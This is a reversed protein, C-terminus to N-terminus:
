FIPFGIQGLCMVLWGLCCLQGLEGGRGTVVEGGLRGRGSASSAWGMVGDERAWALLMGPGASGEGERQVLGALPLLGVSGGERRAWGAWAAGFFGLSYVSGPAVAARVGAGQVWTGVAGRPEPARSERRTSRERARVDLISPM